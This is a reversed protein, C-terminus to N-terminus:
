IAPNAPGGDAHASAPDDPDLSGSIVAARGQVGAFVSPLIALTALTAFTLGGIVARGLPATAEGGLAMPIMGAIMALSTMLVPRSRTQAARVAAEPATSGARRYEEAFTVLLISNALAVGIALIAGMFSQINLSTGTSVLAVVVGAIVAPVTSLVVFSLRLSEFNAALLLFVVLVALALGVGLNALTDRMPTIQGRVQVTIGRPPEGARAIAEDIQSAVRGLDSGAVNAILTVMFQGNVRDYEGVVNGYDVTALDGLLPHPAGGPTVPISEVDELSGMRPQPIQVQVQYAVGTRQDAWFNPTVFRSSSTAAVLSRGVQEVTVGLQGARQRNVQVNIGPYDLPQGYQLDRLAPIGALQARLKETFARATALDGASVAVEVPTPAGFNTIQSVIDAAQFSFECGPFKAPLSKRLRDELDAVDIGAAADLAVNIVADQPGSTWLFV